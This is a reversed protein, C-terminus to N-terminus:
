IGSECHERAFPKRQGRPQHVELRGELSQAAAASLNWGMLASLHTSIYKEQACLTTHSSVMLLLVIRAAFAWKHVTM